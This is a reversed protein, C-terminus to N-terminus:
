GLARGKKRYNESELLLTRVIKQRCESSTAYLWTCMCIMLMSYICVHHGFSSSWFTSLSHDFMTRNEAIAINIMSLHDIHCLPLVTLQKHHDIRCLPLVTLQKHHDIHCLPLVTLQKHHDIRCLPLM